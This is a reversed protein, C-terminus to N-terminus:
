HFSINEAPRMCFVILSSSHLLFRHIYWIIFPFNISLSSLSFFVPFIRFFQIYVVNLPFASELWPFANLQKVHLTTYVYDLCHSTSSKFQFILRCIFACKSRYVNVRKTHRTRERVRQRNMMKIKSSTTQLKNQDHRAVM